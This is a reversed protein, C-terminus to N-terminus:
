LKDGFDESMLMRCNDGVENTVMRIDDFDSITEITVYSNKARSFLRKQGKPRNWTFETFVIKAFPFSKM